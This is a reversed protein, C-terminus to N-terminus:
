KLLEKNEYINGIVKMTGGVNILPVFGHINSELGYCGMKRAVVALEDRYCEVIDGEFIKKGDADKVDVYELLIANLTVENTELNYATIFGDDQGEYTFELNEPQIMKKHVSFWARYKVKEM